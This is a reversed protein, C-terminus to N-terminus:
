RSEWILGFLLVSVSALGVAERLVQLDTGPAIGLDVVLLVNHLMLGGFCLASWLLLRSRNGLYARTLLAACAASTVACLLYVFTAITM